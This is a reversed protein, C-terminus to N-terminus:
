QALLSAYARSIKLNEELPRTIATGDEYALEVVLYGRYGIEKLVGAIARYDIDGDGFAETWVGNRSNRLHLSRTRGAAERLLAEPDQGGRYIWHLDLCLGASTNRLLHRWERANEAMEPDHHHLILEMGRGALKRGLEGVFRAQTDLEADSKRERGAKPSPNFNILKTGIPHVIDALALVQETSAAASGAEHMAGGHYVIPVELGHKELAALTRERVPPQFQSYMLEVRRFGAKRIGALGEAVGDAESRKERHFKQTWVYFQTALLPGSGAAQLEIAAGALLARRTLKHGAM